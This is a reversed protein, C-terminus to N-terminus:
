DLNSEYLFSIILRSAKNWQCPRLMTLCLPQTMGRVSLSINNWNDMIHELSGGVRTTLLENLRMSILDLVKSVATTQHTPPLRSFELLTNSDIMYDSIRIAVTLM